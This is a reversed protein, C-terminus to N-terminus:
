FTGTEKRPHTWLSLIVLAEAYVEPTLVSWTQPSDKEGLFLSLPKPLIEM